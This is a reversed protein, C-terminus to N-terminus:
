PNNAPIGIRRVTFCLHSSNSDQAIAVITDGPQLADARIQLLDPEAIDAGHPVWGFSCLTAELTLGYSDMRQRILEAPVQALRAWDELGMRHGFAACPVGNGLTSRSDPEHTIAQEPNWGDRM